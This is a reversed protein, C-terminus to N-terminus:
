SKGAHTQEIGHRVAGVLFKHNKSKTEVDVMGETSEYCIMGDQDLFTLKNHDEKAVVFNSFSSLCL